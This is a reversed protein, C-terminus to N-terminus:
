KTLLGGHTVFFEVFVLSIIAMLKILINIAPGSTDKFPDGVTDGVVAAKHLDTGKKGAAEIYKKANDWAGGSNASSIALVVGSVLAGALMGALCKIGFLWGVLLPSLIVLLGPAIMERLAATTSIDVCKKYDPKGTGEMLGPIEKFQRRVEEVMDKAADGVSKMTFASFIFPLMAGFLLGGFVLPDLLEITGITSDQLRSRTIFAVFLALSTLAASGIAFGKGVAATTNGAADLTDTRDRVEKGLGAMEAIGGANDSVPGYADITLGIAITSIMGLAAIAIGYMGAMTSSGVITIVLLVVPLVSSKYGLALGYIINTAAGTNCADAVERVPKYSHSTYFETIMGILMGSFLGLILSYYVNMKTITHGPVLEFDVMFRDTVFYMVAAVIITSIWLQKKLTGEVSGGEKVRAFFTTLLCAPIGFASILVPYLLANTNGSLASATAGIVLAACTAEAASGFLDAGMGAIDGVNDGVNDAITAPNRPDDEPIGKEVKGVLDAGVDAAKTYIGGGVRAFLAVSSGGLGFGALAEMLIHKEMGPYSGTFILFLAILGLIAMGILGFGMVAGSDFAVRFAKSISEKAAQATRVNGMTAIRMGIFGSVCSIIAGSIFAIATFLGENFDPTKPNDLLFFIVVTMVAIFISIVKYERMLFAMAGEAIAASITKLKVDEPTDKGNVGGVKITIVKSTFVAATILSLISMAIIIIVSLEM